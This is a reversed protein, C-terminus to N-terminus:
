FNCLFCAKMEPFGAFNNHCGKSIGLEFVLGISIGGNKMLYGQFNKKKKLQGRSNGCAKEEIYVVLFEMDERERGGAQIKEPIAWKKSYFKM